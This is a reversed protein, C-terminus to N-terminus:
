GLRPFSHNTTNTKEKANPLCDAFTFPLLSEYRIFPKEDAYITPRPILEARDVM